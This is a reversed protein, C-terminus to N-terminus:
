SKSKLYSIIKRRVDENPQKYFMYVGPVWAQTNTIWVDLAAENWPMGKLAKLFAPSYVYGEQAGAPRMYVGRLNPGFPPAFALMDPVDVRHGSERSALMLAPGGPFRHAAKDAKEANMGHCIQCQAVYLKEGEAVDTDGALAMRLVLASGAIGCRLLGRLGSM